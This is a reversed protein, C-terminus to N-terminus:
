RCSRRHRACHLEMSAPRLCRAVHVGGAAAVAGHELRGDCGREAGASPSRAVRFRDRDHHTRESSAARSPTHESGVSLIHAGCQRPPGTREDYESRQWLREIGLHGADGVDGEHTASRGRGEFFETQRGAHRYVLWFARSDDGGGLWADHSSRCTHGTKSTAQSRSSPGM